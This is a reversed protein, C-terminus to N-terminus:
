FTAPNCFQAIYAYVARAREPENLKRELKAFRLGLQVLEKGKLARLAKEYVPRAKTIGYYHTAKAIYLNWFDGTDKTARDYVDMAKSTLGFNEEFDGWMQFFM